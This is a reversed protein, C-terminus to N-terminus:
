PPDAAPPSVRRAGRRPSSLAGSEGGMVPKNPHYQHYVTYTDYNYSCTFVDMINTLTDSSDPDWESNATLPRTPDAALIVDKFQAGITGGHESGIECGGAPSLLTPNLTQLVRATSESPSPPRAVRGCGRSM